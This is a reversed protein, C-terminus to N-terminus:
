GLAEAPRVTVVRSPNAAHWLLASITWCLWATWLSHSPYHAGRLLQAIGFAIGFFWVGALWRRAAKPSTARLVFWGSFFSFAASAHGSPFCGGPGGDAVGLAWHSVYHASGGFEVLDWPCSTGSAHKFTPILLLCAATALCWWWRSRLSMDRAFSWPRFVNVILAGIVVACLWRGGEHFVHVLVWENRWAFGHLGGFSRVIRLDAGSADWLLVFALFALTWLADRRATSPDPSRM